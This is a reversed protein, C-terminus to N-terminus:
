QDGRRAQSDIIKTTSETQSDTQRDTVFMAEEKKTERHFRAMDQGGTRWSLFVVFRQEEIIPKPGQHGFNVGWIQVFDGPLRHTMSDTM